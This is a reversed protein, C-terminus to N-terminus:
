WGSHTLDLWPRNGSIWFWSPWLRGVKLVKLSALRSASARAYEASM